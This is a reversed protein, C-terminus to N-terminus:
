KACHYKISVINGCSCTYTHVLLLCLCMQAPASSLRRLGAGGAWCLGPAAPAPPAALERQGAPTVTAAARRCLRASLGQARTLCLREGCVAPRLKATQRSNCGAEDWGLPSIWNGTASIHNSLCNSGVYSWQQAASEILTRFGDHGQNWPKIMVLM